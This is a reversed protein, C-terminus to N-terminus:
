SMAQLTPFHHPLSTTVLLHHPSFAAARFRANKRTFHNCGAIFTVEQTRRTCSPGNRDYHTGGRHEALLPQEQTRLEKRKKFRRNRIANSHSCSQQTAVHTSVHLNAVHHQLVCPLPQTLTAQHRPQIDYISNESQRWTKSSCNGVGNRTTRKHKAVWDRCIATYHNCSNVSSQTHTDSPRISLNCNICNCSISYNLKAAICSCRAHTVM